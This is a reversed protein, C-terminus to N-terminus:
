LKDIVCIYKMQFLRNLFIYLTDMIDNNTHIELNNENPQPCVFKLITNLHQSALDHLSDNYSVM